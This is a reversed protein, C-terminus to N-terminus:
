GTLIIKLDKKNLIQLFPCVERQTPSAFNPTVEVM